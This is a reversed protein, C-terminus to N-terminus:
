LKYQLSPLMSGDSKHEQALIVADTAQEVYRLLPGDADTNVTVIQGKIKSESYTMKVLITFMMMAHVLRKPRTPRSAQDKGRSPM